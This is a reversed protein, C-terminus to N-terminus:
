PAASGATVPFRHLGRCLRVKQHHLLAARHAASSIESIAVAISSLAFRDTDRQLADAGAQIEVRFRPRPFSTGVAAISAPTRWASRRGNVSLGPQLPLCGGYQLDLFLEACPPMASGPVRCPRKDYLDHRRQKAVARMLRRGNAVKTSFRLRCRIQQRQVGDRANRKRDRYMDRPRRWEWIPVAISSNGAEKAFRDACQQLPRGEACSSFPPKENVYRDHPSQVRQQATHRRWSRCTWPQINRWAYSQQRRGQRRRRPPRVALQVAFVRLTCVIAFVATGEAKTSM